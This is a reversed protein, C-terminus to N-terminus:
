DAGVGELLSGCRVLRPCEEEGVNIVTHEAKSFNAAIGDNDTVIRLELLGSGFKCM